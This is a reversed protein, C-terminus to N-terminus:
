TWNLVLNSKTDIIFGFFNSILETELFCFGLLKLKKLEISFYFNIKIATSKGRRCYYM